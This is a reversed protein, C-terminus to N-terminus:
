RPTTLPKRHALTVAGAVIIFAFAFWQLAYALHVNEGSAPLAFPLTILGPRAWTSEGTPAVARVYANAVPAPVHVAVQASDLARASWLSVGSRESELAVWDYVTRSSPFREAVGSVVADGDEWREPHAIRSDDAALWGREVLVREGSPLVLPTVVQVGAAGMYTRGSLLIYRERDWKGRLTVRRGHELELRGEAPEVPPQELLAVRAVQAARKEGARGLQWLGLGVCVGAATVVFLAAILRVGRSNM